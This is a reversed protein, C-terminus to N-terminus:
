GKVRSLLGVCEVHATHPFQDFPTVKKLEYGLEALLKCDRAFTASNCSVYVIREPEMGAAARLLSEECGKRPPDLVVVDAREGKEILKPCVEEAAGCHFEANVIGNIEANERANDVAEPVIEVGIVKKAREALYLGITGAGCYLDFVTEEGTLACYEAAKDYLKKTTDPNVQYFSKYHIKYAVSGIKDIMYDRGSLIKQRDGLILNTRKPNLNLVVGKIEPFAAAAKEGLLSLKKDDYAVVLVLMAESEGARVYIHRLCGRGSEEDYASIGLRSAEDVVYNVIKTIVPKQLACDRTPVVRHSHPAFFGAALRGDKVTVPYQAKNRYGLNPESGVCGAVNPSEIGGIRELADIVRRTKIGLQLEYDSSMMTCGGCKGFAPCVPEVRRPSPEVINVLKGYGYSKNEKLVLIEARDGLVAGPVFLTYGDERKAIGEGESGVDTVTLTLIDNKM